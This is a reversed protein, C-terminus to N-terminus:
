LRGGHTNWAGIGHQIEEETPRKVEFQGEGYGSIHASNATYTALEAHQEQFWWHGGHFFAHGFHRLPQVIANATATDQYANAERLIAQILAQKDM